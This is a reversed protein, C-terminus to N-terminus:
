EDNKTRFSMQQDNAMSANEKLKSIEYKLDIYEERSSKYM